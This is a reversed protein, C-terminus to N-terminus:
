LLKVDQKLTELEFLKDRQIRNSEDLDRSFSANKKNINALTQMESHLMENINLTENNKQKLVEIEAEQSRLENKLHM